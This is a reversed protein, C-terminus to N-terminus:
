GCNLELDVCLKMYGITELLEPIERCVAEHLWSDGVTLKQRCVTARLWGEGM